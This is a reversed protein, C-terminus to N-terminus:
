ACRTFSIGSKQSLERVFPEDKPSIRVEARKERSFKDINKFIFALEPRSLRKQAEIKATIKQTKKRAFYEKLQMAMAFCMLFGFLGEGNKGEFGFLDM